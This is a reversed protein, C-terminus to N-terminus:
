REENKVQKITKENEERKRKIPKRIDTELYEAFTQHSLAIHETENLYQMWGQAM